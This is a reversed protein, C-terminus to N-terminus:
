RFKGYEALVAEAQEKEQETLVVEPRIRGREDRRPDSQTTELDPADKGKGREQSEAKLIALRRQAKTSTTIGRLVLEFRLVALATILSDSRVNVATGRILDALARKGLAHGLGAPSYGRHRRMQDVARIFSDQDDFIWECDREVPRLVLEMDLGTVTLILSDSRIHQKRGAILDSASRNGMRRFLSQLNLQRFKRVGDLARVFSEQDTAVWEQVPPKSAM